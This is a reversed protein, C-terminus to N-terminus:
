AIMGNPYYQEVSMYNIELNTAKISSGDIENVKNEKNINKNINLHTTSFFYDTPEDACYLM